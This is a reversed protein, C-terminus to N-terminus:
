ENNELSIIVFVKLSDVAFPIIQDDMKSETKEARKKFIFGIYDSLKILTWFISLIFILAFSKDLIMNIGFEDKTQINWDPSFAIKSCACYIVSMMIFLNMPKKAWSPNYNWNM